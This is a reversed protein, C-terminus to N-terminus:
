LTLRVVTGYFIDNRLNNKVLNDFFCALMIIDIYFSSLGKM